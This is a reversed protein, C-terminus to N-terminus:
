TNIKIATISLPIINDKPDPGVAFWKEAESKTTLGRYHQHLLNPAHGAWQATLTEGHLIYSYSCFAHRLGNPKRTVDATECVAGFRQQWIIEASAAKIDCVPGSKDRWEALWSALAPQIEVLRRQRTKSKVAKIEIHGPIRWVDEWMLRMLEATRLGALGGIAIMARM